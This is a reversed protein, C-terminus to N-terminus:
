PNKPQNGTSRTPKDTGVAQQPARRASARVLYGGPPLGTLGSWGGSDLEVALIQGCPTRLAVDFDAPVPARPSPDVIANLRIWADDSAATSCGLPAGLGAWRAAERVATTPEIAEAMALTDFPSSRGFRGLAVVIALRVEPDLELAYAQELLALARPSGAMGLGKAARLRMWPDSHRLWESVRGDDSDVGRRALESVVLVASSGGVQLLRELARQPLEMAAEDDNLVLLLHRSNEPMAQEGLLRAVRRRTEPSSQMLARAAGRALALDKSVIFGEIKSPDISSSAWAADARDIPSSSRLLQPILARFGVVPELHQQERVVAARFAWRRTNLTSLAKQLSVTADPHAMKALAIAAASALRPRSLWGNLVKVAPATETQAICRALTDLHVAAISDAQHALQGILSPVAARELLHLVLSRDRPNSLGHAAARPWQPHRSIALVTYAAQRQEDSSEADALWYAAVEPADPDQLRNLAALASAKQAAPAYVVVDRLAGFLRADGLEALLEAYEMAGNKRRYLLQSVDQPPYAALAVAAAKAVPGSQALADILVQQGEANAYAALTMAATQRLLEPLETSPETVKESDGLIRTIASMLAPYDARHSAIRLAQLREIAPLATRTPDVIAALRELAIPNGLAALQQYGLLRRGEDSSGLWRELRVQDFREGLLGQNATTAAEADPSWASARAPLTAATLVGLLM